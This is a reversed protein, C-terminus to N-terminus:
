QKEWPKILKWHNEVGEKEPAVHFKGQADIFSYYISMDGPGFFGIDAQIGCKCSALLIGTKTDFVLLRINEIGKHKKRIDRWEWSVTQDYTIKEHVRTTLIKTLIKKTLPTSGLAIPATILLMSPLTFLAAVGGLCVFSILGLQASPNFVEIQVKNTWGVGRLYALACANSAFTLIDVTHEESNNTFTYAMLAPSYTMTLVLLALNRTYKKRMANGENVLLM